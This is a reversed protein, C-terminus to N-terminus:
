LVEDIGGGPSSRGTYGIKLKPLAKKLEAVQENPVKTGSLSLWLEQLNVLSKLPALDSLMTDDLYLKKLETLEKLPTLDSVKTGCLYLEQLGTLEKLPTLDFIATYDLNLSRLSKLGKLPTLDFVAVAGSLTLDQLKNLEKLPTLDSLQSRSLALSTVKAFDAENVDKPKKKLKTAVAKRVIAADPEKRRCGSILLLASLLIATSAILHRM